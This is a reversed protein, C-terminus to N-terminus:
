LQYKKKKKRKETIKIFDFSYSEKAIEFSDSHFALDYKKQVNFSILFSYFFLNFYM